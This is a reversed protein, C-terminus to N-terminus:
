REIVSKKLVKWSILVSGDEAFARDVRLVVLVDSRRPSVSRLLYTAAPSAPVGNMADMAAAPNRRFADRERDRLVEDDVPAEGWFEAWREAAERPAWQPPAAAAAGAAKEIPVDGLPM